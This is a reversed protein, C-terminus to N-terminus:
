QHCLGMSGQKRAFVDVWCCALTGSVIGSPEADPFLSLRASRSLCQDQKTVPYVPSTSGLKSDQCPGVTERPEGPALGEFRTRSRNYKVARGTPKKKYRWWGKEVGERGEVDGSRSALLSAWGREVEEVQEDVM